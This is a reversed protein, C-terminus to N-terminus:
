MTGTSIARGDPYAARFRIVAKVTPWSWGRPIWLFPGSIVLLLFAFNCAGTLARGSARHNNDAGLWRHWNEVNQFFARTAPASEGLVNGTQVDVLFVHERGFSVEAPAAPDARLTIASPMASHQAAVNALLAEIPLRSSAAAAPTSRLGRDMWSRDIWSIVQRQYALLVGTVSMILVVIGALCGSALHAWFLIKRLFRL